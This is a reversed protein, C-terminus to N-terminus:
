PVTNKVKKQGVKKQGIQLTVNLKPDKDNSEVDFDIYTSSKVDTPRDKITKYYTNNHKNAMNDLKDTYM